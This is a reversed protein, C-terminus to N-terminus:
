SRFCKAKGASSAHLTAVHQANRKKFESQQHEGVLLSESGVSGDDFHGQHRKQLIDGTCVSFLVILTAIQPIYVWLTNCARVLRVVLTSRNTGPPLLGPLASYM